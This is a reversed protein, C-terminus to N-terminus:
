TARAEAARGCVAAANASRCDKMHDLMADHVAQARDCQVCVVLHFACTVGNCHAHKLQTDCVECRQNIDHVTNAM